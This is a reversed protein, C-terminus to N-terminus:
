NDRAFVYTHCPPYTTRCLEAAAPDQCTHSGLAIELCCAAFAPVVPGYQYGDFDICQAEDGVHLFPEYNGTEDQCKISFDLGLSAYYVIDRACRCNMDDTGKLQRQYNLIQEGHKHVCRERYDAKDIFKPKFSGDTDCDLQRTTYALGHVKAETTLLQGPAWESECVRLYNFDLFKKPDYCPLDKWQHQPLVNGM